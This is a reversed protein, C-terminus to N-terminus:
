ARRYVLLKQSLATLLYFSLPKLPCREDHIGQSTNLDLASARHHPGVEKRTEAPASPLHV